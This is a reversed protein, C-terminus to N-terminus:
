IKFKLFNLEWYLVIKVGFSNDFGVNGKRGECQMCIVYNELFKRQYNEFFFIFFFDFSQYNGKLFIIYCFCFMYM